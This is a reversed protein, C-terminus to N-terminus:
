DLAVAAVALLHSSCEWYNYSRKKRFRCVLPRWCCRPVAIHSAFMSAALTRAICSGTCSAKTTARLMKGFSDAAATVAVAFSQM